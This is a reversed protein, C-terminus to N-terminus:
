SLPTVDPCKRSSPTRSLPHCRGEPLFPSRAKWFTPVALVFALSGPLSLVAEPRARPMLLYLPAPQEVPQTVGM